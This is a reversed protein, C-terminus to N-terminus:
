LVCLEVMECKKERMNKMTKAIPDPDFTAVKKARKKKKNGKESPRHIAVVLCCIAVHVGNGRSQSELQGISQCQRRKRRM